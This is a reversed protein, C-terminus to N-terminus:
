AALRLRSRLPYRSRLKVRTHPGTPARVCTVCDGCYSSSTQASFGTLAKSSSRRGLRSSVPSGPHPSGNLPAGAAPPSHSRTLRAMSHIRLVGGGRDTVHCSFYDLGSSETLRSASWIGPYHPRRGAVGIIAQPRSWVSDHAYVSGRNSTDAAELIATQNRVAYIPNGISALFLALAIWM